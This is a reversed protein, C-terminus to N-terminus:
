SGTGAGPQAGAGQLTGAGIRERAETRLFALLTLAAVLAASVAVASVVLVDARYILFAVLSCAIQAGILRFAVARPALGSAALRHASHDTGGVHVPRRGLMRSSVVLLGDFVPVGVALVAITGRVIGSPGVLDLQLGIAALLFGLLLSGADGLFIRAPPFNSRLFGICAGCVGVALSAVLLDGEVSAIAFFGFASAATVGAAVGDMNDLLNVANTVAVVWVVTVLLDAWGVGFIGGRIGALWLDCAALVEVALKLVPGQSRWDDLLGLLAVAIACGLITLVQRSAGGTALGAILLGACVAVGGLYPTAELHFKRAGPRDLIGFRRAARGLMPTMAYAVCLPVLFFLPYRVTSPLEVVVDITM